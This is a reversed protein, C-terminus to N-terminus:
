VLRQKRGLNARIAVAARGNRVIEDVGLHSVLVLVLVLVVVVVVVVVVLLVVVVSVLLVGHRLVGDRWPSHELVVARIVESQPFM